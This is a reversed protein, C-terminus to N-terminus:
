VDTIVYEVRLSCLERVTLMRRLLFETIVGLWKM